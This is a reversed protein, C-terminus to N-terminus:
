RSFKQALEAARQFADEGHPYLKPFRATAKLAIEELTASGNMEQLFFREAQGEETLEPVHGTAHRRLTGTSVNEGEFTSQRFHIRPGEDLPSSETEWRWVYDKGVRDASLTVSIEQGEKVALPELWPLFLHGYIRIPSGPGSSFGINEFLETEFWVCIGHAEENRNARFVLKASANSSPNGLYDLTCFKEPASVLQDAEFRSSHTTNLVMRLPASLEVGEVCARWPSTLESYFRKAQVIAAMLVDRRPIMAGGPALFREKADALSAVAGDFLPVVGRIDSVIVDAREPLELKRSDSQFFQIREAFGNATAIQRAISVIDETDIAYVRRAGARCALMAFVGPGCGIEVVVNEPRVSRAIANGYASFRASDGIMTGFERMSYMDFIAKKARKEM